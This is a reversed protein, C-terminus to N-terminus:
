AHELADAACHDGGRRSWAHRRAHGPARLDGGGTAPFLKIHLSFVFIILFGLWFSPMSVGALALFMSSADLWTHQRVAALVGLVTGIVAAVLLGAVALQLTSPSTTASKPPFRASAASRIASIAM